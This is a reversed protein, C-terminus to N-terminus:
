GQLLNLPYNSCCNEGLRYVLGEASSKFDYRGPGWVSLHSHVDLPLVCPDMNTFSGCDRFHQSPRATNEGRWDGQEKRFTGSSLSTIPGKGGPQGRVMCLEGLALAPKKSLLGLCMMDGKSLYM